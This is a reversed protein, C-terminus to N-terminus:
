PRAAKDRTGQLAPNSPARQLLYFVYGSLMGALVFVGGVALAPMLDRSLSMLFPPAATVIAGVAICLRPGFVLFRNLIWFFPLVVFLTYGFCFVLAGALVLLTHGHSETVFWYGTIALAPITAAGLASAGVDRDHAM